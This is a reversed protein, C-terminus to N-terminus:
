GIHKGIFDDAATPDLKGTEVLKLILSAMVLKEPVDEEGIEVENREFAAVLDEHASKAAEEVEAESGVLEVLEDMAESNLEFSEKSPNAGYTYGENLRFLKIM